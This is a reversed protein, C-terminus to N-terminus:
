IAALLTEIDGIMDTLTKSSGTFVINDTSAVRVNGNVTLNESNSSTGITVGGDYPMYLVRKWDPTYPASGSTVNSRYFGLSQRGYSTAATTEIKFGNSDSSSGQFLIKHQQNNLTTGRFTLTAGGTKVLEFHEGYINAWLRNNSANSSDIYGLDFTSNSGPKVRHTDVTIATNSTGAGGVSIALTGGTPINVYNWNARSFNVHAVASTNTLTITDFTGTESATIAGAVSLGTSSITAVNTSDAHFLISSGYLYTNGTTQFGSGIILNNSTSVYLMRRDTGETDAGYIAKNNPLYIHDGVTLTKAAWDISTSNSNGSDYILHWDDAWGDSNRVRWWMKNTPSTGNYNGNYAFQMAGIEFNSPNFQVAAGFWGIDSPAHAWYTTNSVNRIAGGGALVTNLNYGGAEDTGKYQTPRNATTAYLTTITKNTGGITASLPTEISSSLETFVESIASHVGGSTVVNTSNATPTTDVGPIRSDILDVTTNNPLKIKKANAM